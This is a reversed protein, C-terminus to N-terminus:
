QQNIIPNNLLCESKHSEWDSKQCEKSCYRLRYCGTCVLLKNSNDTITEVDMNKQENYDSNCNPNDCKEKKKNKACYKELEIYCNSVVSLGGSNNNELNNDDNAIIRNAIQGWSIDLLKQMTDSSLTTFVHDNAKLGIICDGNIKQNSLRTASKNISDIYHPHESTKAYIMLNFKLYKMELQVYKSVDEEEIPMRHFIFEELDGKESIKVAKPNVSMNILNHIDKEELNLQFCTYDDNIGFKLLVAPGFVKIHEYNLLSGLGNVHEFGQLFCIQYVYESDEYCTLTECMGDKTLNIANVICELLEDNNSVKSYSVNDKWEGINSFNIDNQKIIGVNM